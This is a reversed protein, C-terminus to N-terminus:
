DILAAENELSRGFLQLFFLGEVRPEVALRLRGFRYRGGLNRLLRFLYVEANIMMFMLAMRATKLRMKPAYKPDYYRLHAISGSLTAAGCTGLFTWEPAQHTTAEGTLGVHVIDVLDSPGAQGAHLGAGSRDWPASSAAFM